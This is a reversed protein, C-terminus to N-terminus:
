IEVVVLPAPNGDVIATCALIMEREFRCERRKM